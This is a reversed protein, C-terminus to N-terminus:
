EHIKYVYGDPDRVYCADEEVELMISADEAHKETLIIVALALDKVRIGISNTDKGKDTSDPVLPNGLILHLELNGGTFWAGHRDFNPRRVQQLGLVHACFNTAAGVNSVILGIHNVSSIGFEDEDIYAGLAGLDTTGSSIKAEYGFTEEPATQDEGHETAGAILPKPDYLLGDKVAKGDEDVDIAEVFYSPPQYIRVTEGYAIKRKMLKIATPAHNGAQLLIEEIEANTFSQTISSYIVKRGILNKLIKNDAKKPWKEKPLPEGFYSEPDSKMLAINDKADSALAILKSSWKFVTTLMKTSDVKVYGEKYVDLNYDTAKNLVFDTLLHCNCIEFYYGDPDRLFAQGM